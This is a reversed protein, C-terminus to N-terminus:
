SEWGGIFCLVRNEKVEFAIVGVVNTLSEFIPVGAALRFGTWATRGCLAKFALWQVYTLACAALLEFPDALAEPVPGLGASSKQAARKRCLV